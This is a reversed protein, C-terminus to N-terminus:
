VFRIDKVVERGLAANLKQVIESKRISLEQRWPGNTVRVVLVGKQIRTATAVKAIQVGVISEWQVVADYEQIRSKIGLQDVLESLATGIDKTHSRQRRNM